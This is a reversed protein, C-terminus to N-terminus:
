LVKAAEPLKLQVLSHNVNGRVAIKQFISKIIETCMYSFADFVFYDRLLSDLLKDLPSALICNLTSIKVKLKM